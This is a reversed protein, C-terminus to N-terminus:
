DHNKKHKGHGRAKALEEMSLGGSNDADLKELMKEPSHRAQMEEMSLSGNGDADM